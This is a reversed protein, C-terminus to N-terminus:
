REGEEITAPRVAQRLVNATACLGGSAALQSFSMLANPPEGVRPATVFTGRGQFSEVAGAARLAALARRVTVRSVALEESLERETPLQTGRPLREDAIRSALDYQVRRHLPVGTAM